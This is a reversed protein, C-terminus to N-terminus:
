KDFAIRANGGYGNAIGITQVTVKAVTVAVTQNVSLFSRVNAVDAHVHAHDVHRADVALLTIRNLDKAVVQRYGYQRVFKVGYGVLHKGRHAVADLPDVKLLQCVIYIYAACLSVINKAKRQM